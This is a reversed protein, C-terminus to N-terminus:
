LLEWLKQELKKLDACFLRIGESLKETAMANQNMAFRFKPEDFSVKDLSLNIAADKSLEQILPASTEQLEKLLAPSITLYDCGALAQIQGINRFSAGMVITSYNFKKYYNYIQMVSQVGPDDLGVFDQNMAKKYWDYIRGVFPSILTIGHEACLQAQAFHFMLTLNCHIGQRELEAAAMIGEHTAAIKILIREPNVGAKAYLDMITMAERITAAKDFSLHADVETSVRGPVLALLAKGFNVAVKRLAWPLQEEKTAAKSQSFAIANNLYEQYRADESAKLILSPNTTADQPKFAAISEVDGTDAVVVTM